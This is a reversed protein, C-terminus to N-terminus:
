AIYIVSMSVTNGAINTGASSGTWIEINGSSNILPQWYWPLATDFPGCKKTTNSSDVLGFFGIIKSSSIGTTITISNGASAMTGTFTAIKIGTNGAGLSTFGRIVVNTTIGVTNSSDLYLGTDTDSSFVLGPAGTTGSSIKTTGSITADSNTQIQKYFLARTTGLAAIPTQNHAVGVGYTDAYYIGTGTQGTFTLSPEYFSGDTSLVAVSDDFAGTAGQAGRPGRPGQSGADDSSWNFPNRPM